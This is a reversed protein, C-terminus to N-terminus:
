EEFGHYGPQGATVVDMSSGSWNAPIAHKQVVYAERVLGCWWSTVCARFPNLIALINIFAFSAAWGMFYFGKNTRYVHAQQPKNNKLRKHKGRFRCEHDARYIYRNYRYM